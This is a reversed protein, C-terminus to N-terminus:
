PLVHPFTGGISCTTTTGLVNISYTGADPCTPMAMLYKPVIDTQNITGGDVVSNELAFQSKAQEINKLNNICTTQRTKSRSYIWSPVAITAIMTLIGITVMIEVLTFAAKKNQM